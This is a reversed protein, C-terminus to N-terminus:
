RLGRTDLPRSPHEIIIPIMGTSKELYSALELFDKNEFSIGGSTSNKGEHIAQVRDSLGTGSLVIGHGTRRLRTDLANPYNLHAVGSGYIPDLEEDINIWEAFYVGEPTASDGKRRKPAPNTGATGKYSQIMTLSGDKFEFLSGINEAKNYYFAAKYGEAIMKQELKVLTIPNQQGQPQKESGISPEPSTKTFVRFGSIQSQADTSKDPDPSAQSRYGQQMQPSESSQYPDQQIRKMKLRTLESEQKAILAEKESVIQELNKSKEAEAKIKSDLESIKGKGTAIDNAMVGIANGAARYAKGVEQSVASCNEIVMGSGLLMGVAIYRKFSPPYLFTWVRNGFRKAVTYAGISGLVALVTGGLFIKSGLGMSSDNRMEKIRNVYDSLEEEETHSRRREDVTDAEL